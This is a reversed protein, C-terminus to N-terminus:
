RCRIFAEHREHAWYRAEHSYPGFHDVAQRYRMETYNLRRNCDTWAAAQVSPAGAIFLFGGLTLAALAKSLLSFSPIIKMLDEM